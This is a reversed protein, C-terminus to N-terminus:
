SIVMASIYARYTSTRAGTGANQYAYFHLMHHRTAAESPDCAGFSLTVTGSKEENAASRECISVPNTETHKYSVRSIGGQSSKITAYLKLKFPEGKYGSLYRGPYFDVPIDDTKDSGGATTSITKEATQGLSVAKDTPTFLPYLTLTQGAALTVSAGDAYVLPADAAASTAWGRLPAVGYLKRFVDTALKSAVGPEVSTPYSSSAISAHNAGSYVITARAPTGGSSGSGGSWGEPAAYQTVHVLWAGNGFVARLKLAWADEPIEKELAVRVSSAVSLAVTSAAAEGASAMEETQEGARLTVLIQDGPAAIAPYTITLRNPSTGVSAYHNETNVAPSIATDETIIEAQVARLLARYLLAATVLGSGGEDVEEAIQIGSTIADYVGGSTVLAPSDKEVISTTSDAVAQRIAEASPAPGEPGEPGIVPGLDLTIPHTAM